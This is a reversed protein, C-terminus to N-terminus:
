PSGPVFKLQRLDFYAEQLQFHSDFWVCRVKKNALIEQVCMVPSVPLGQVQVTAYQLSTQISQREEPSLDEDAILRRSLECLLDQVPTM